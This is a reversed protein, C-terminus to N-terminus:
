FITTIHSAANGRMKLLNRCDQTETNILTGVNKREYFEQKKKKNRKRQCDDCLFKNFSRTTFAAGCEQCNLNKSKMKRTRKM